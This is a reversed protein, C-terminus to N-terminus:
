LLGLDEATLDICRRAREVLLDIEVHGFTLPPSFVMCDRISRMVLGNAFCHDRCKFGVEGIPEFHKRAARDEVLEIAGILGLSRVEGVLPHDALAQGLARALYPGTDNRVKEILREDELIRINELAVACAVPHGSYTFGHQFEGGEGILRDAVRDGVMIASLPLYGSTLGKAMPMLDPQIAFAESGFWHGTRGFGCIVEDAILLVDHKRCIRQIEPWYSAPPIIV